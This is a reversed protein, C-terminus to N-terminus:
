EAEESGVLDDLAILHYLISRATEMKLHKPRPAQKFTTAYGRQLCERALQDLTKGHGAAQLCALVIAQQGRRVNPRSKRSLFYVTM